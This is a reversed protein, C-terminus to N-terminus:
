MFQKKLADLEYTIFCKKGNFGKYPVECAFLEDILKQMELSTLEKGRKIAAGKALAKALSERVDLELDVNSKYQELLNEIIEVEDM